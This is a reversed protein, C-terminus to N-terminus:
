LHPHTSALCTYLWCIFTEAYLPDDLYHDPSVDLKSDSLRYLLFEDTVGINEAGRVYSDVV